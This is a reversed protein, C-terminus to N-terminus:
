RFVSQCSSFTNSNPTRERSNNGSAKRSTRLNKKSLRTSIRAGFLGTVLEHNFISPFRRATVSPIPSPTADGPQMYREIRETGTEDKGLIRGFAKPTNHDNNEIPTGTFGFLSAAPLTARMWKGFDGEQSRHAEDILAIVNTRPVAFTEHGTFKHMITIIIGRFGDGESLLKVLDAKSEAM